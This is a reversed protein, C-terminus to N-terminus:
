NSFSPDRMNERFIKQVHCLSLVYKFYERHLFTFTETNLIIDLIGSKPIILDAYPHSGAFVPHIIIKLSPLLRRFELLSRQCHVASTILRISHINNKEIWEKTEIANGVTTKALYGLFINKAEQHFHEINIVELFGAHQVGSIFLLPAYKNELLHLATSLRTPGGTITVM